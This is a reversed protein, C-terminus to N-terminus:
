LFFLFFFTLSVSSRCFFQFVQRSLRQAVVGGGKHSCYRLSFFLVFELYIAFDSELIKVQFAAALM